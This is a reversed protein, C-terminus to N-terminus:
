HIFVSGLGRGTRRLASPVLEEGAHGAAEM